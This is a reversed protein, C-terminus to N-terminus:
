ADLRESLDNAHHVGPIGSWLPLTTTNGQCPIVLSLQPRSERESNSVAGVQHVAPAGRFVSDILSKQQLAHSASETCRCPLTTVLAGTSIRNQHEVRAGFHRPSNNRNDLGHGVKPSYSTRLPDNSKAPLRASPAGRSRRVLRETKSRDPQPAQIRSRTAPLLLITTCRRHAETACKQRVEPASRTCRHRVLKANKSVPTSRSGAIM